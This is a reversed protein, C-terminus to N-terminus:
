PLFSSSYVSIGFGDLGSFDLFAFLLALLMSMMKKSM